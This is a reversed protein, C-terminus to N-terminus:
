YISWRQFHFIDPVFIRIVIYLGVSSTFSILCLSGSLLIYVFAPLSLYRACLDQYWYISWRQFHSIDPVFIRIGICLGVSSTLSIQCLSGSVLVYVLASTLSIQCLSGSALIYVLAPLSLYRACRDQYWYISWRQFHSIDPVFIRIGIYLDVSSTLPIQCLSGSVLIYVLAPLSFYRACLDQYWYISWCQFHSIDPMFIRIGIYLGVSSTLSIQCLSGSVLIYVLAPLTLYRTCLDQYWYISWRQFNSIDPVFFGSVLIYVLAPLSLYRACLDQHWYISWRQFHSIDPVFIRIGIYLGVSSTLSIQRLSGSALIYVLAPLSLYRACLYQYWYLSWRQFHSIDPVFIRIGICLGVSSTLSIQCLSGSELIYVLATLTLYRACLDQYWYISWRQFHSIDPVFIRVGICLGVSSTLSIQCLSGSVLIYVLAPLSLYRACLNQYWYILGVSSTLSIQCLSGSVM